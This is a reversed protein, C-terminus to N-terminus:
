ASILNLRKKSATQNFHMGDTYNAALDTDSESKARQLCQLSFSALLPLTRLARIAPSGSGNLFLARMTSRDNRFRAHGNRM